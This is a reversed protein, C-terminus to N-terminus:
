AAYYRGSLRARDARGIAEAPGTFRLGLEDRVHWVVAAPRLTEEGEDFLLLIAPVPGDGYRRVRVGGESLNIASGDEIFRKGRTM